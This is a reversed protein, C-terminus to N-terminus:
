VRRSIFCVTKKWCRQHRIPEIELKEIMLSCSDGGGGLQIILASNGAIKEILKGNEGSNKTEGDRIIIIMQQNLATLNRRHVHSTETKCNLLNRIGLLLDPSNTHWQDRLRATLNNRVSNKDSQILYLQILLDTHDQTKNSSTDDLLIWYKGGNSLNNQEEAGSIRTFLDNSQM